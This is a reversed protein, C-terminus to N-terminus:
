HMIILQMCISQQGVVIDSGHLCSLCLLLLLFSSASESVSETHVPHTAFLLSALLSTKPACNLMRGKEDRALGGTLIAFVDIMLASVVAHLVINLVHFGVPHLGGALLYNLRFFSLLSLAYHLLPTPTQGPM